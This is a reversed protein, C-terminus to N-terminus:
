ICWRPLAGKPSGSRQLPKAADHSPSITGVAADDEVSPVVHAAAPIIGEKSLYRRANDIRHLDGVARKHARGAPGHRAVAQEMAHRDTFAFDGVLLDKGKQGLVIEDRRTPGSIKELARSARDPSSIM